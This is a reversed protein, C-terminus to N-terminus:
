QRFVSSPRTKEIVEESLRYWESIVGNSFSFKGIDLVVKALQKM